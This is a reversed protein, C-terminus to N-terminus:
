RRGSKVDWNGNVGLSGRVNLRHQSCWGTHPALNNCAMPCTCLSLHLSPSWECCYETDKCVATGDQSVPVAAAMAFLLAFCVPKFM